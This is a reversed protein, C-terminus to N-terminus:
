NIHKCILRHFHHVGKEYKASYRGKNYFQSKIGKQVNCVVNQDEEEVRDLSSDINTPQVYDAIPYSLFRIRSKNKNIPEIINISLGWSYFNLMINPFIWYYYAYINKNSNVITGVKPIKSNNTKKSLNGSGFFIIKPVKTNPIKVIPAKNIILSVSNISNPM